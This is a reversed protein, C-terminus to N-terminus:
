RAERAVGPLRTKEDSLVARLNPFSVNHLKNWKWDGLQRSSSPMDGGFPLTYVADYDTALLLGEKALVYAKRWLALRSMAWVYSALHLLLGERDVLEESVVLSPHEGAQPDTYPEGEGFGRVSRVMIDRAWWGIAAVTAQKVIPAVASPASQRLRWFESRVPSFGNNWESWYWGEYPSCRWGMRRAAQVEELWYWGEWMGSTPYTVLGDSTRVPLPGLAAQPDAWVLYKRYSTVCDVEPGEQISHIQSVPGGPLHHIEALYSGNRDSEWVEPFTEDPRLMDVRGGVIEQKMRGWQRLPVRSIKPGAYHKRMIAQGLAAPTMAPGVGCHEWAARIADVGFLDTVGWASRSVIWHTQESVKFRLAVVGRDGSVSASAGGEIADVFWPAAGLSAQPALMLLPTDSLESMGRLDTWRCDDALAFVDRAPGDKQPYRPWFTSHGSPEDEPVSGFDKVM